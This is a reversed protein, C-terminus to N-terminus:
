QSSAIASEFLAKVEDKEMHLELVQAVPKM